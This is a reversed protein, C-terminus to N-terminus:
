IRIGLTVRVPVAIEPRRKLLTSGSVTLAPPSPVKLKRCLSKLATTGIGLDIAAQKLPRDILISLVDMTAVIRESSVRMAEGAKRRPVMKCPPLTDSVTLLAIASCVFLM